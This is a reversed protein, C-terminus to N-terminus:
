ARNRDAWAAWRFRMHVRMGIFSRSLVGGNVHAPTCGAPWGALWCALWGALWCALLCALLGALYTCFSSAGFLEDPGDIDSAGSGDDGDKGGGGGGGGNTGGGGGSGGGGRGNTHSRLRTSSLWADRDSLWARTMAHAGAPDSADLALRRGGGGGGDQAAKRAQAASDRDAGARGKREEGAAADDGDDTTSSGGNASDRGKARGGGHATAAAKAAAAKEDAMRNSTNRAKQFGHVIVGVFINRFVFAGLWVWSVIFTTVVV